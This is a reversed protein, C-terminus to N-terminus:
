CCCCCEGRKRGGEGLEIAVNCSPHRRLGFTRRIVSIAWPIDMNSFGGLLLHSTLSTAHYTHFCYVSSSKVYPPLPCSFFCLWGRGVLYTVHIAGQLLKEVKIRTCLANLGKTVSSLLIPFPSGARRLLLSPCTSQRSSTRRLMTTRTSKGLIMRLDRRSAIEGKQPRKRMSM